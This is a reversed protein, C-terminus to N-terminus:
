RSPTRVLTVARAAVVGRERVVALYTGSPVPLGRDDRADWTLEHRGAPLAGNLLTRVRRGLVDVIEVKVNGRQPLNFHITTKGAFPNPRNGFVVLADPVPVRSGAVWSVEDSPRSENGYADYATVVFYYRTGPELGSITVRTGLGADLVHEYVGSAQGYYVTYGALDPEDNPLWALTISAEQAWVPDPGVFSPSLFLWLLFVLALARGAEAPEVSFRQRVRKAVRNTEALDLKQM